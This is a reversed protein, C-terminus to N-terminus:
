PHEKRIAAKAQAREIQHVIRKHKRNLRGHMRWGSLPRRSWWDADPKTGTDKITRAM